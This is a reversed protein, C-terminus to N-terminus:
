VGAPRPWGPAVLALLKFLAGMAAPAVLRTHAAAIEEARGPAARALAAARPGIGLAELWPGQEVAAIADVGAARAADAMAAFDVHATLDRGGPDGFPDAFAHGSVAQLTEGAGPATHGYDILLAAGGQRALRRSLAAVMELAAPCTEAISGLPAARLAEPVDGDVVSMGPIPVFGTGSWDIMRERWGADTHLFQRIPLADFFENAIVILPADGPLTALDDHWQAQPVRTAQAARLIPSTEVFHVEPSLGAARMARLADAALTGRGPGLEVYYVRNAGSRLWLDAACAGILEGFMQSIEPATIFDGGRGLPDRTAYYEANAAAMFAELPIPGEAM